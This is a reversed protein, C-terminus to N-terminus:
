KKQADYDAQIEAAAMARNYICVDDIRGYFPAFCMGPAASGVTGGIGIEYNGPYIGATYPESTELKGNVYVNVSVGDYTGVVQTWTNLPLITKSLPNVNPAGDGGDRNIVIYVRGDPFIALGYSEQLPRVNVASWKSIINMYM